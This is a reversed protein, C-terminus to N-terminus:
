RRRPFKDKGHKKIITPTQKPAFRLQREKQVLELEEQIDRLLKENDFPKYLFKDVGLRIAHAPTDEEAYGSIFMFGSIHRKENFIKKIKEVAIIGNEGPMRIDSIILDFDKVAVLSVAEIANNACDIEYGKRKLLNKLSKVVLEDDDIILIKPIM